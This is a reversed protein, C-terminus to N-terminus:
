AGRRMAATAAAQVAAHAQALRQAGRGAVVAYPLGHAHLLQRLADDVPERVHPGDRQLGDPVWPLDLATLLTFHMERHLAVAPQELTCDDFVLRSYVATMLATTDSVVIEHRAAAIRVRRHQELAIALQEDARPTRGQADCWERLVEPVWAVRLGPGSRSREGTSGPAGLSRALAQALTTKGTSEAGVIAICLAPPNAPPM